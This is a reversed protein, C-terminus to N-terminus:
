REIVVRFGGAAMKRQDFPMKFNKVKAYKKGLYDMVKKNVANRHAKNKYVVFSFWVTEGKSARAMKMFGLPLPGGETKPKLDDGICEYYELAGFRKWTRAGETAMKKYAAFKKKPIPIVFGEVYKPM